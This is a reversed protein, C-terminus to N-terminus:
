ELIESLSVHEATGAQFALAIIKPIQAINNFDLHIIIFFFQESRDLRPISCTIKPVARCGGVLMQGPNSKFM